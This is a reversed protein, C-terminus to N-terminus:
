SAHAGELLTPEIEMIISMPPIPREFTFVSGILLKHYSLHPHVVVHLGMYTYASFQKTTYRATAARLDRDGQESIILYTAQPLDDRIFGEHFSFVRNQRLTDIHNNIIDLTLTEYDCPVVAITTM